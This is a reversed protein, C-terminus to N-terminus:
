LMESIITMKDSVLHKLQHFDFLGLLKDEKAVKVLADACKEILRPIASLEYVKDKTLSRCNLEYTKFLIDENIYDKLTSVFDHYCSISLEDIEMDGSGSSAINQKISQFLSLLACYLRMFIYVKETGFVLRSSPELKKSIEGEKAEDAVELLEMFGGLRTYQVKEVPSLHHVISSPRIFGKGFALEIKYYAGASGSAERFELILGDGFATKM